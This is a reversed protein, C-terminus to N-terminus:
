IKEFGFEVKSNNSFISCFALLFSRFSKIFEFFESFGTFGSCSKEFNLSTQSLIPFIIVGSIPFPKPFIWSIVSFNESIFFPILFLIKHFGSNAQIKAVKDYIGRTQSNIEIIKHNKQISIFSSFFLEEKFSSFTFSFIELFHLKKSCAFNKSFKQFCSFQSISSFKKVEISYM